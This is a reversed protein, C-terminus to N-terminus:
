QSQTKSKEPTGQVPVESAKSESAPLRKPDPQPMSAEKEQRLVDVSEISDFIAAHASHSLALAALLIGSRIMSLTEKLSQLFFPSARALPLIQRFRRLVESPPLSVM